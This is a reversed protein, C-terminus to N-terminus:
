RLWLEQHIADLKAGVAELSHHRRVFEPGRAGLQRRLDPDLVLRRLEEVLTDPDASVIPCEDWEPHWPRFRDALRCMVPKGLAMGEIAFLAYAGILFQDAIVDAREFIRRAEDNPLGEVLVLEVPLGEAQLAAVAEELYRTGKYHRHNPAHVVTVVGDDVEPVPTWGDGDFPYLLVGDVRPLDEVLDACGLLVDGWRDFAALRQRVDREDRDETGPAIDTYAHWPGQGRVASVIRADGGYPYAIVGKGALRLLPLEVRVGPGGLLGGDYFFGFHDYRLGAWLFAGYPVLWGVGPTARLRDLVLDFDDRQNIRYVGYVLSDSQYGYRREALTAYRHNLIPTPGWLVAPPKGARRRRHRRLRSLPAVLVAYLAATVAGALANGGLWLLQRLRTGMAATASPVM